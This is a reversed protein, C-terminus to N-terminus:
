RIVDIVASPDAQSAARRTASQVIPRRATQDTGRGPGKGGSLNFTAPAQMPPYDIASQALQAVSKQVVVFRWFERAMFDNM